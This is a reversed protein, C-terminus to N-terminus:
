MKHTRCGIGIQKKVSTHHPLKFMNLKFDSKVMHVLVPLLMM